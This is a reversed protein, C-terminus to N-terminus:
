RSSRPQTVMSARVPAVTASAPTASQKDTSSTYRSSSSSVLRHISSAALWNRLRGLFPQRENRLRPQISAARGEFLEPFSYTLVANNPSRGTAVVVTRNKPDLDFSKVDFRVGNLEGLNMSWRPAVDGEDHISWASIASWPKDGPAKGKVTHAVVIWDRYARLEGIDEDINLTTRPGGIIKV